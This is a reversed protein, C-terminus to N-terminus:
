IFYAHITHQTCSNAYAMTHVKHHNGNALLILLWFLLHWKRVNGEGIRRISQPTIKCMKPGNEGASPCSIPAIPFKAMLVMSVFIYNLNWVWSETRDQFKDVCIKRKYNTQLLCKLPIKIFLATKPASEKGIIDLKLKNMLYVPSFLFHFPQHFFFFWNSNFIREFDINLIFKHLKSTTEHFISIMELAFDVAVIEIVNRVSTSNRYFLLRTAIIWTWVHIIWNFIFYMSM